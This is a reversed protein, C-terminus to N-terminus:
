VLVGSLAQLRRAILVARTDGSAVQMKLYANMKTVLANLPANAGTLGQVADKLINKAGKSRHALYNRLAITFDFLAADEASLTFRKAAPASLLQNARVSLKAASPVSINWDKPDLWESIRHPQISAPPTLAVHKAAMTGFKGKVSEHLRSKLDALFTSPDESVYAMLLDSLFVEWLVTTTFAFQEVLLSELSAQRKHNHVAHLLESHHRVAEDLRKHFKFVVAKAAVSM